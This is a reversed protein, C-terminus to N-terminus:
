VPLFQHQLIQKETTKTYLLVMVQFLSNGPTNTITEDYKYGVFCKRSGVRQTGRTRGFKNPFGM